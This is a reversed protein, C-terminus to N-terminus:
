YKFAVCSQNQDESLIQNIEGDIMKEAKSVMILKALQAYKNRVGSAQPHISPIKTELIYKEISSTPFPRLGQEILDALTKVPMLRVMHDFMPYFELSKFILSYCSFQMDNRCNINEILADIQEPSLQFLLPQANRLLQKASSLAYYPITSYYSLCRHLLSSFLSFDDSYSKTKALLNLIPVLHNEMHENYLDGNDRMGGHGAGCITLLTTIVDSFATLALNDQNANIFNELDLYFQKGAEAASESHEKSWSYRVSLDRPNTSWYPMYDKTIDLQTLKEKYSCFLENVKKRQPYANSSSLRAQLTPVVQKSTFLSLSSRM